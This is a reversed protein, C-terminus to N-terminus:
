RPNNMLSFDMAYRDNRIVITFFHQGIDIVRVPQWRLSFIFVAISTVFSFLIIWKSGSPFSLSMFAGVCAIGLGIMAIFSIFFIIRIALIRYYDASCVPASINMKKYKVKSFFGFFSISSLSSNSISYSKAPNGNCGICRHPWKITQSFHFQFESSM